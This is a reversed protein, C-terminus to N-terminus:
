LVKHKEDYIKRQYIMKALFHDYSHSISLARWRQHYKLESNKSVVICAIVRDQKVSVFSLHTTM